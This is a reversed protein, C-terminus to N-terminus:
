LEVWHWHESPTWHTSCRRRPHLVYRFSLSAAPIPVVGCERRKVDFPVVISWFEMLDVFTAM